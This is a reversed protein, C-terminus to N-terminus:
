YASRMMNTPSRLHQFRAGLKNRLFVGFFHEEAVSGEVPDDLPSM